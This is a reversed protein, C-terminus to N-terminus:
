RLRRLAKADLGLEQLGAAELHRVNELCDAPWEAPVPVFGLAEPVM